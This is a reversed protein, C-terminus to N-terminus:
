RKWEARRPPVCLRPTNVLTEVGDRKIPYRVRYFFLRARLFEFLAHAAPAPVFPQFHLLDLGLAPKVLPAGPKAPCSALAAELEPPLRAVPFPYTPHTSPPASSPALTALVLRAPAPPADGDSPRPRKAAPAFFSDLTRKSM